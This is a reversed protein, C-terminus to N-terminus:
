YLDPEYRDSKTVAAKLNDPVIAQPVGAFYTLANALALLFDHKKQSYVAQCYTYQSCGLVAVFVELGQKQGTQADTIHLKEGAFDIYLKDGAKHELHM